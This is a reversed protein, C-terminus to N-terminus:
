GDRETVIIDFEFEDEPLPAGTVDLDVVVIETGDATASLAFLIRVTGAIGGGSRHLAGSAGVSFGLDEFYAGVEDLPEALTYRRWRQGSAEREEEIREARPHILGSFSFSAADLQVDPGAFTADFPDWRRDVESTSCDIRWRGEDLTWFRSSLANDVFSVRAGLIEEGSGPDELAGKTNLTVIEVPRLTVEGAAAIQALDREIEASECSRGYVAAAGRHGTAAAALYGRVTLRLADIDDQEIVEIIQQQAPRAELRVQDTGSEGPQPAESGSCAVLLLAVMPLAWTSRGCGM